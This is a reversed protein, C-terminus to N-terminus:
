RMASFSASIRPRRTSSTRRMVMSFPLRSYRSGYARDAAGAKPATKRKRRFFDIKRGSMKPFFISFDSFVTQMKGLVM